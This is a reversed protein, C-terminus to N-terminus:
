GPSVIEAAASDVDRLRGLSMVLRYRGRTSAALYVMGSVDALVSFPQELQERLATRIGLIQSLAVCAGSM